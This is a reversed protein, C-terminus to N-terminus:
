AWKMMGPLVKVALDPHGPLLRVAYAYRGGRRCPIQARCVTIDGEEGCKQMPVALPHELRDQGDLPGHCVEAQVHTFPLPGLRLRATVTLEGGKYVFDGSPSTVSVIEVKTWDRALRKRWATLARARAFNDAALEATLKEAPLYYGQVYEVLMRSSNFREGLKTLSLRMMQVWRRPIGHVDREYFCAAVDKEILHYLLDGEIDDQADPNEYNERHGIAWGLDPEYAEDWWGDMISLNLVGNIAAKMGSTGSAEHPRRPTNLWVDVGQVLRRAVQMDYDEIFVFRHGLKRQSAFEILSRIIEKGAHDAPHAKGAIVFQVPQTESRLMKELREPDKLLLYARKYTAFRRAFGITLIRPDLVARAAAMEAPNAGRRELELVRRRRVADVLKKRNFEHTEWLEDDPIQGLHGWMIFDGLGNSSSPGAYRLFLNRLQPSMWTQTHVGNTVHGIPIEAVPIEPYLKQWMQRSVVAHLRSVGNVRACFRLALVTMCFEEFDVQPNERGWGLVEHMAVGLDKASRDFYRRVLDPHVRENGAPVPTHTTFITSAWIVERAEELTLKQTAMLQRLREIILFASHGENVHYVPPNLGLAQLARVGGVGLLIEQRIRVDRDTDYLRVTIHRQHPTNEPLNTDLLYIRARGVDVRWIQFIVQEGALDIECKVSNGQADKELHVPMSYWDNEPYQEQQMGEANLRQRFYGQRYLLGVGVLPLGLDSASKLHDGALVGLGGSYVPLSENLGFECSFYAIQPSPREGHLRQFWTVEKMYNNFRDYVADLEALFLPDSAVHDLREQPVLCLMRVPDQGSEYWSKPDLKEFLRRAEWHWSFWLNYALDNLHKLKAPTDPLVTFAHLNM